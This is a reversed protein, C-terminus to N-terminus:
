AGPPPMDAPESHQERERWARALARDIVPRVNEIPPFPSLPVAPMARARALLATVDDGALRECAVYLGSEGEELPNHAALLRRLEGILDPRPAVALIGAIAAHDLRLQAVMPLPEGGRRRRADPFLVKEEIAIHRLLRARFADFAALDPASFDAVARELLTELEAHDQALYDHLDGM